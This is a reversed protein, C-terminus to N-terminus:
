AVREDRVDPLVTLGSGTSIQLAKIATLVKEATRQLQKSTASLRAAKKAEISDHRQLKATLQEIEAKLLANEELAESSAEGDIPADSASAIAARLARVDVSALRKPVKTTRGPTPTASSDFTRRTRIQVRACLNEYGPAWFWGMGTSLSPLTGMIAAAQGEEAHLEVWARIANLDSPHVLRLVVLIEAQTLVSKHIAAPRQTILSIGIGKRRGRRVLDEMVVLSGGEAKRGQPAFMDAEDVFLHLAERNLRYLAEGFEAFFATLEENRFHSLDLIASFRKEVLARAIVAGSGKELPLDAHDGGFIVVPYGGKTGDASSKLGFWAGTPDIVVIQQHNRLMEEALVSASYTKGAGKKALFAITETVISLPLRFRKGNCTGIKFPGKMTREQIQIPKTRTLNAGPDYRRKLYDRTAVLRQVAANCDNAASFNGQATASAIITGAAAIQRDCKAILAMGAPRGIKPANLDIM